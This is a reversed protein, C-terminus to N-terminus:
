GVSHTDWAFSTGPGSGIVHAHGDPHPESMVEWIFDCGFPYRNKYKSFQLIAQQGGFASTGDQRAEGLVENTTENRLRIQFPIFGGFIPSPDLNMASSWTDGPGVSFEPDEFAGAHQPPAVCHHLLAPGWIGTDEWAGIAGRYRRYNRNPDPDCGALREAASAWEIGFEAAVAIWFAYFAVTDVAAALDFAFSYGLYEGIGDAEVGDTLLRRANKVWSKGTALDVDIKLSPTLASFFMKLATPKFTDVYMQPTPQCDAFYLSKILNTDLEIEDAIWELIM